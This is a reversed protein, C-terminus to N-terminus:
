EEHNEIYKLIEFSKEPFHFHYDEIAELPLVYYSLDNSIQYNLTQRDINDNREM